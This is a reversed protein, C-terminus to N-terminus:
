RKCLLWGVDGPQKNQKQKNLLPATIHIESIMEEQERRCSEALHKLALALTDQSSVTGTTVPMSHDHLGTGDTYSNYGM